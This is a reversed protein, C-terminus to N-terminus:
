PGPFWEKFSAALAPDGHVEVGLEAPKGRGMLMWYLGEAPGRMAVDAKGHQAETVVQGNEARIIWEGEGDTRHIHFSASKGKHPSRQHLRTLMNLSEGLGRDIFWDPIPITRGIAPTLDHGHIIYENLRLARVVPLPVTGFPVTLITQPATEVAEGIAAVTQESAEHAAEKLRAPDWTSLAEFRRLRDARDVPLDLGARDKGLADLLLGLFLQDGSTVHAVVNAATWGECLSPRTWGDQPIADVARLYWDGAQRLRSVKQEV